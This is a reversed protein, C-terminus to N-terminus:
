EQGELASREERTMKRVFIQRTTRDFHAVAQEEEATMTRMASGIKIIVGPYLKGYVYVCEDVMKELEEDLLKGQETLDNVKDMAMPMATQCKKLFLEKDEPLKGGGEKKLNELVTINKLVENMRESWLLLDADLKQKREQLSPVMGVSVETVIEADSGLEKVYMSGAITCKGGIVTGKGHLAKLNKGVRAKGQVMFDKIILDGATELAPGNEVFEVTLDGKSRLVTEDGVAPGSIVLTGGAMATGNEVGKQIVIDGRCKVTFGPMIEGQVLLKEGGFAINGVTLDVDGSVSHEGFVSPKGEAMVFKGDRNSYIKLEDESLRVGKGIKLKRDKGPKSSIGMGFVDMGPTGANPPIKEVLLRDKTVNVINGLERYDVEDKDPDKKKPAYVVAPKVHLVIRANEGQKAAVGKAVCFSGGGMPEPAELIGSVVGFQELEHALNQVNLDMPNKIDKLTVVAQLHDKTVKLLFHGDQIEVGGRFLQESAM